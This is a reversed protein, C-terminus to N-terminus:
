DQISITLSCQRRKCWLNNNNYNWSRTHKFNEHFNIYIFTSRAWNHHNKYINMTIKIFKGEDVGDRLTEGKYAWSVVLFQAKRVRVCSQCWQSHFFLSPSDSPPLTLLTIVMIRTFKICFFSVTKRENFQAPSSSFEKKEQYLNENDGFVEQWENREDDKNKRLHSSFSFFYVLHFLKRFNNKKKKKTINSTIAWVSMVLASSISSSSILIKTM